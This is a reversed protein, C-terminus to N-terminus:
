EAQWHSSIGNGDFDHTYRTKLENSVLTKGAIYANLDSLRSGAQLLQSGSHARFYISPVSSGM